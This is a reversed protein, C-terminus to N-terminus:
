DKWENLLQDCNISAIINDIKILSAKFWQKGKPGQTGIHGLVYMVYWKTLFCNGLAATTAHVSTNIILM